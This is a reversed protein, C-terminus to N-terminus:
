KTEKEIWKLYDENGDEIDTSIVECVKYPHNSVIENKLDNFLEKKTKIMMLYESDEQVKDEWTYLSTIKPIINVCACLKKNLLIRALNKSVEDSPTTCFVIIFKKM